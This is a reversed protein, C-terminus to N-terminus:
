IIKQKLAFSNLSEKNKKLFFLNGETGSRIKVFSKRIIKSPSGVSGTKESNGNKNNDPWIKDFLQLSKIGFLGMYVNSMYHGSRFSIM